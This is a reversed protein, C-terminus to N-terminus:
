DRLRRGTLTLFVDELTARNIQILEDPIGLQELKLFIKSATKYNEYPILEVYFDQESIKGLNEMETLKDFYGLNKTLANGILADKIEKVTEGIEDIKSEMEKQWNEM